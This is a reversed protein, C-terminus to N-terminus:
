KILLTGIVTRGLLDFQRLEFSYDVKSTYNLKEVLLILTNEDAADVTAATDSIFASSLYEIGSSADKQRFLECIGSLLTDDVSGTILVRKCLKEDSIYRNIYSATVEVATSLSECPRESGELKDILQQIPHFIAKSKESKVTTLIPSGYSRAESVSIIKQSTVELFFGIFISSFTAIVIGWLSAKFSGRVIASLKPRETTVVSGTSTIPILGNDASPLTIETARDILEYDFSGILSSVENILLEAARSCMNTSLEENGTDASVVLFHYNDTSMTGVNSHGSPIVSINPNIYCDMISSFNGLSYPSELVDHLRYNYTVMRNRLKYEESMAEKYFESELTEMMSKSKFLSLASQAILSADETPIYIIKKSTFIYPYDVNISTETASSTDETYNAYTRYAPVFSSLFGILGFFVVLILWLGTHRLIHILFATMDFSDSSTTKISPTQQSSYPKKM